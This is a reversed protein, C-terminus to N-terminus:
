EDVKKTIRYSQCEIDYNKSNFVKAYPDQIQEIEQNTKRSEVDIEKVFYLWYKKGLEKAIKIENESWHIEFQENATGKVEIFRDYTLDKSKGDYSVIDYGANSYEDSIKKVKDSEAMHGNNKLRNKEYDLVIEEAIEGTIKWNQLQNELQKQTLKKVSKSQDILTFYKPNIQVTVDKKEILGVEYLLPLIEPMEFLKFVDWKPYWRKGDNTTYFSDFTHIIKEGHDGVLLCNSILIDNVNNRDAADDKNEALLKEGLKTLHLTEDKIEVIKFNDCIKETEFYNPLRAEKVPEDAFTKKVYNRSSNEKNQYLKVIRLFKQIDQLKVTM